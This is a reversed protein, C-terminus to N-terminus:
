AAVFPEDHWEAELQNQGDAHTRPRLLRLVTRLGPPKKAPPSRRHRWGCSAALIPSTRQLDNAIPQSNLVLPGSPRISRLDGPCGELSVVRVPRGSAAIILAPRDRGNMADNAPAGDIQALPNELLKPDMTALCVRLRSSGCSPSDGLQRGTRTMVGLSFPRDLFKFFKEARGPVFIARSFPMSGAEISFRTRRRLACRASSCSWAASPWARVLGEAGLRGACRKSRCRRRWRDWPPLACPRTRGDAIDLRHVQVQGFRWRPPALGCEGHEEDILCSPVHGVGRRAASCRGGAAAGLHGSSLGVSFMQCNMRSLQSDL